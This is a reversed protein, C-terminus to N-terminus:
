SEQGDIKKAMLKESVDGQAIKTKKLFSEMELFLPHSDLDLYNKALVKFAEFSCYSLEIALVKFASWIGDIFNLLGSLTVRSQNQDEKGEEGDKKSLLDSDTKLVNMDEIVIMLRSAQKINRRSTKEVGLQESYGHTELYYLLGDDDLLLGDHPGAQLQM